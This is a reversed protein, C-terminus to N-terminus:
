MEKSHNSKGGDIIQFKHKRVDHLVSAPVDVLDKDDIEILARLLLRPSDGLRIWELSLYEKIVLRYNKGMITTYGNDGIQPIDAGLKVEHNAYFDM